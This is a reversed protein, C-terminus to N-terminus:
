GFKTLYLDKETNMVNSQKKVLFKTIYISLDDRYILGYETNGFM